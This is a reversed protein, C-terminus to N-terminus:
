IWSEVIGSVDTPQRDIRFLNSPILNRVEELTDALFMQKTPSDEIHLRAVYKEPYDLPKNYITWIKLQRGSFIDMDHKKAIELLTSIVDEGSYCSVKAQDNDCREATFLSHDSFFFMELQHDAFQNVVHASYHEKVKNFLDEDTICSLAQLFHEALTM